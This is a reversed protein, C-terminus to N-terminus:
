SIEAGFKLAAAPVRGSFGHPWLEAQDRTLCLFKTGKTLGLDSAAIALADKLTPADIERLASYQDPGVDNTFVRYKM